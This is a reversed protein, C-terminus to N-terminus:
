EPMTFGELMKKSESIVNGIEQPTMDQGQKEKQMKECEECYEAFSLDGWYKHLYMQWRADHVKEDAINKLITKTFDRFQHLRIFEDMILFPSAYRKALLDM